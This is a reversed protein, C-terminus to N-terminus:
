IIYDYLRLLTGYKWESEVVREGETIQGKSNIEAYKLFYKNQSKTTLIGVCSM